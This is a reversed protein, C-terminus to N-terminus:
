GIAKNTAVISSEPSIVKVAMAGLLIGCWKSEVLYHQGTATQAEAEAAEPSSEGTTL